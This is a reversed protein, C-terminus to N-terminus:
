RMLLRPLVQLMEQQARRELERQLERQRRRRHARALDAYLAQFMTFSRTSSPHFDTIQTASPGAPDVTSASGAPAGALSTAFSM